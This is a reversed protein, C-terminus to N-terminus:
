MEINNLVPITKANIGKVLVDRNREYVIKYYAKQLTTLEVDIVTEQLPPISDEVDEKM